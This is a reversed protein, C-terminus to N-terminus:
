CHRIVLGSEGTECSSYSIVVPSEIVIPFRTSVNGPRGGRLNIEDPIGGRSATRPPPNTTPSRVTTPAVMSEHEDDSVALTANFAACLPTLTRSTHGFSM